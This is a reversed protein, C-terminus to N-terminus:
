REWPAPTSLLRRIAANSELPADLLANFRKLEQPSLSFQTQDALVERAKDCAADLIFETRSVGSVEVAPDILARKDAPARFNIVKSAPAM